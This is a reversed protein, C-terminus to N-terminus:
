TNPKTEKSRQLKMIFFANVILSLLFVYVPYNPLSWAITPVPSSGVQAFALQISFVDVGIVVVPPHYGSITFLILQSSLFLVLGMIINAIIVNTTFKKTM